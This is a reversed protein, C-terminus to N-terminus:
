CLSFTQFKELIFLQLQGRKENLGSVVLVMYFYLKKYAAKYNNQNKTKKLGKNVSRPDAPGWATEKKVSEKFVWAFKKM